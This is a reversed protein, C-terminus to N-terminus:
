IHVYDVHMTNGKLDSTLIIASLTDELVGWSASPDVELWEKLMERCCDQSREPNFKNNASIIGLQYQDLKM